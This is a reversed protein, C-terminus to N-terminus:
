VVSEVVREARRIVNVERPEAVEENVNIRRGGSEQRDCPSIWVWIETAYYIAEVLFANVIPPRDAQPQAEGESAPPM